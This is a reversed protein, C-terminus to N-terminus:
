ELNLKRRLIYHTLAYFLISSLLTIAFSINYLFLIYHYVDLATPSYNATTEIFIPLTWQFVIGGVVIVIVGFIQNVIYVGIYAVFSMLIKHKGFLHGIALSVYVQLIKCITGFLIILVLLVILFWPSTHLETRILDGTKALFDFVESVPTESLLMTMISAITIIIDITFWIFAVILKSLILQNASVPLTHMLYGEDTFMNRYFRYILYITTAVCVAFLSVLYFGSILYVLAPIPQFINLAIIAREFLTMVLLTIHLIILLKSVARFEHKILKGLM